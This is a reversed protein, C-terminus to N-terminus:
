GDALERPRVFRRLVAGDGSLTNWADGPLSFVALGATPFGGTMRLIEGEDSGPGALMNALVEMGPNHGVVMLTAVDSPTEEIAALLTGASALYLDRRIDAPIERGLTDCLFQWTQVTRVAASVLAHDPLTRHATMWNAIRPTAKRGRPALARDFDELAADNWDSKAHRLLMLTKMATVMDRGRTTRM